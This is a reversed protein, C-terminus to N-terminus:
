SGADPTGSSTGPTAEPAPVVTVDNGESIHEAVEVAKDEPLPPVIDGQKEAWKQQVAEVVEEPDKGTHTDGLEEVIDQVTGAVNESAVNAMRNATANESKM